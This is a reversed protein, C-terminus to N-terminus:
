GQNKKYNEAQELVGKHVFANAVLPFSYKQQLTTLNVKFKDKIDDRVAWDPYQAVM